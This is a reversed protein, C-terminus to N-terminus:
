KLFFTFAFSNLILPKLSQIRRFLRVQLSLAVNLHTMHSFPVGVFNLGKKDHTFPPRDVCRTTASRSPYVDSRAAFCEGIQRMLSRMLLAKRRTWASPGQPGLLVVRIPSSKRGTDRLFFRWNTSHVSWLGVLFVLMEYADSGFSYVCRYLCRTHILCSGRKQGVNM